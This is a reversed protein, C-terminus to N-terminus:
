SQVKVAMAVCSIMSVFRLFEHLDRWTTSINEYKSNTGADGTQQQQKKEIWSFDTDWRGGFM